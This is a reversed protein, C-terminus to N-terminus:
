SRLNNEYLIGQLLEIFDPLQSMPIPITVGGPAYDARQPVLDIRDARPDHIVDLQRLTTTVGGGLLSPPPTFAGYHFERKEIPTNSAM